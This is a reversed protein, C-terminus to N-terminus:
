RNEKKKMWIITQALYRRQYLSNENWCEIDVHKLTWPHSLSLPGWSLYLCIKLPSFTQFYSSIHGFNFMKEPSHSKHSTKWRDGARLPPKGPKGFVGTDTKHCIISIIMIEKVIWLWEVGILTKIAVVEIMLDSSKGFCSIHLNFGHSHNTLLLFFLDHM